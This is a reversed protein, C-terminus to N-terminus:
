WQKVELINCHINNYAMIESVDSIKKSREETNIIFNKLKLNNINMSKTFIDQEAGTEEEDDDECDLCDEFGEDASSVSIKIVPSPRQQEEEDSEDDEEYNDESVTTKVEHSNNTSYQPFNKHFRSWFNDIDYVGEHDNELSSVSIIIPKTSSITM